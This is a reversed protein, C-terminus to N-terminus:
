KRPPGGCAMPRRLVSLSVWLPLPSPLCLFSMLFGQSIFTRVCLPITTFVHLTLTSFLFFCLSLVGLVCISCFKLLLLLPLSNFQGCVSTRRGIISVLINLSLPFHFGFWFSLFFVGGERPQLFLFGCPPPFNSGLLRSFVDSNLSFLPSAYIEDIV